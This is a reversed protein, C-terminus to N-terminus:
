RFATEELYPPPIIMILMNVFYHPLVPWTSILLAKSSLGIKAILYSIVGNLLM